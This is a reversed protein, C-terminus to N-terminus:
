DGLGGKRRRHTASYTFYGCVAIPDSPSFWLFSQGEKVEGRPSVPSYINVGFVHQSDNVSYRLVSLWHAFVLSCNYTCKVTIITYISLSRFLNFASWPLTSVSTM